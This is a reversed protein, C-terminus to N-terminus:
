PRSVRVRLFCNGAGLPLKAERTQISDDTSLLVDTFGTPAGTEGPSKWNGLGSCAQPTLLVDTLSTDRQYRLVFHTATRSAAPLRPASDNGAVPSAGFAYEILNPRGDHDPDGNPNSITGAPLSHATELGAAWTAFNPGAPPPPPDTVTLTQYSAPFDRGSIQPAVSMLYTGAAPSFSGNHTALTQTQPNLLTSVNSFHMADILWGFENAIYGGYYSGTSSLLFRIRFAKGAMAALNVQRLSFGAEGAHNYGTQAYVDQWAAGGEEKVQVKFSEDTTSYRVLSQFSLLAAPHGYYLSNLELVQSYGWPNMLHFASAGQQKVVHNLVSYNSIITTIGATSECNEAAAPSTNWRNWRYGTAGACGNFALQHVTGATANAPSTIAPPSYSLKLDAKANQSAPFVLNVTQNVNPGTFTVARTAATTPVPVTWGGGAATQCYQSAGAVNVTLGSIGEGIDYFNNSNLDYYAVGTGFSPSSPRSGFDQTVLQPGVGGNTGLVVGVGIERFAGNHISARHGRNTQMGGTGSGWDVQFGAHGYWVSDAYAFINEGASSYSYGAATMRTFPTNTPENHSQTATALMWSSHGRAATTLAANPALPPQAAIANFESQMMGLNVVFYAYASLVDPDTTAALRAGEAPPNARARNIFEIYLQEEASPNGFDYPTQGWSSVALAFTAGQILGHLHGFPRPILHFREATM